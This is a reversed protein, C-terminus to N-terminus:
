SLPIEPELESRRSSILIHIKIFEGPQRHLMLM